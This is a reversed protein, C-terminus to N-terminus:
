NTKLFRTPASGTITDSLGMAPTIPPITGIETFDITFQNAGTGFTDSSSILAAFASPAIVIAALAAVLLILPRRSKM